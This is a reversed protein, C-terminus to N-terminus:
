LFPDGTTSAFHHALADLMAEFSASQAVVQVRLGLATASAAVRPSIAVALPQRALDIGIRSILGRATEVSGLLVADIAHNQLAELV